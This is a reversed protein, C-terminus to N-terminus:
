SSWFWSSWRFLAAYTGTEICINKKHVIFGALVRYFASESAHLIISAGLVVQSELRVSRRCIRASFSPQQVDAAPPVGTSPRRLHGFWVLGVLEQCGDFQNDNPM